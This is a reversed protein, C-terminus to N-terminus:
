EATESGYGAGALASRIDAEGIESSAFAVVIASGDMRITAERIGPLTQIAQFIHSSEHEVGSGETLAIAINAESDANVKAFVKTVGEATTKTSGVNGNAISMYAIAIGVVAVAIILIKHQPKM